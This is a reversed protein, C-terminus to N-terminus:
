LLSVGERIDPKCSRKLKERTKILSKEEVGKGRESEKEDETEGEKRDGRNIM